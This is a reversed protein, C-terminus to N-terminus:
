PLYAVTLDLNITNSVCLANKTALSAFMPFGLPASGSVSTIAVSGIVTGSTGPSDYVVVTGLAHSNIQLYGILIPQTPGIQTTGAVTGLHVYKFVQPNTSPTAMYAQDIYTM